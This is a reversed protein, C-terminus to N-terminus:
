RFREIRPSFGMSDLWYNYEEPSIKEPPLGSAAVLVAEMVNTGFSRGDLNPTTTILMEVGADKLMALDKSTVTNTMLIKGALSAPMYRRILHFDGAIVDAEQYLQIYRAKPKQEQKQGTPYLWHIPFRSAVPGLVRAIYDLSRLSRLPFPLNLLFVLDGLILHAGSRALEEAMGFRDVSSVMLVKKGQFDVIGSEQLHRVVRRELTDKLGSGDVIPTHKAARALRVADRLIYRRKGAVVYLDIGGMGLADVKGDLQQILEIARDIDGDTGRREILFSKGAFNHTVSHDRSSSGISVSVVHLHRVPAKTQTLSM